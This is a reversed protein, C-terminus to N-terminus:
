LINSWFPCVAQIENTIIAKLICHFIFTYILHVNEVLIRFCGLSELIGAFPCIAVRTYVQEQEIKDEREHLMDMWTLIELVTAWLGSIGNGIELFFLTRYINVVNKTTYSQSETIFKSTWLDM